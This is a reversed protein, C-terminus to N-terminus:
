RSVIDSLLVSDLRLSSIPSPTIEGEEEGEGSSRSGAPNDV